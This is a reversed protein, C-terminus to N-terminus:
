LQILVYCTHRIFLFHVDKLVLKATLFKCGGAWGGFTGSQLQLEDSGGHCPELM